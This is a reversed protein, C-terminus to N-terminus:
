KQAYTSNVCTASVLRLSDAQWHLLYFLCPNLGETLFIGQLLFCGGVEANKGPSSSVDSGCVVERRICM